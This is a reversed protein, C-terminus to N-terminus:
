KAFEKLITEAVAEAGDPTWLTHDAAGIYKEYRERYRQELAARDSSLPRDDTTILEALPRDIFYLRGNRRLERVNEERLIVGGGTAIVLGQLCSTQGIVESEIDRFAKEGKLAFIEPISQGAKETILTDTDVFKRGLKESLLKGVTSKGCSPMGILVINEKERKLKSFVDLIKTEEVATDLFYEVAKAAQAVLMYLGGVATIGKEKAKLVIESRLPNYVADAVAQVKPFDALDVAAGKINPYMGVPTTNLIVDADSHEAKAREYTICGETERRSLRYYERAGMDKAVAAATKSTGGSGLILVKKDWLDIHNSMLLSKLGYFDTNYGYLVGNKNVVTNVAGISQAVPDIYQLYPIVTQKYPITVNIAKFERARMFADVQTPALEKLEYTYEALEAHIIKSFSHSLKEGICGYQM